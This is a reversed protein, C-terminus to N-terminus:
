ASAVAHRAVKTAALSQIDAADARVFRQEGMECTADRLVAAFVVLVTLLSRYKDGTYAYQLIASVMWNALAMQSPSFVLSRGLLAVHADVAVLVEAVADDVLPDDLPVVVPVPM